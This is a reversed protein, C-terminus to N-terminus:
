EPLETIEKQASQREALRQRYSVVTERIISTLIKQFFEVPTIGENIRVQGQPMTMTENYNYQDAFADIVVQLSARDRFWIMMAQEVAEGNVQGRVIRDIRYRKEPAPM